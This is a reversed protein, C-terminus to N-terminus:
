CIILLDEWNFCKEKMYSLTALGLGGLGAIGLDKRNYAAATSFLDITRNFHYDRLLRIDETAHRNYLINLTSLFRVDVVYPDNDISKRRKDERWQRILGLSSDMDRGILEADIGPYALISTFFTLVARFMPELDDTKEAFEFLHRLFTPTNAAVGIVHERVQNCFEPYKEGCGKLMVAVMGCIHYLYCIHERDKKPVRKERVADSLQKLLIHTSELFTIIKDKVVLYDLEDERSPNPIKRFENWSNFFLATGCSEVDPERFIGGPLKIISKELNGWLSDGEIFDNEVLNRFGQAIGFVGSSFPRMSYQKLDKTINLVLSNAFDFYIDTQKYWKDYNYLFIAAGMKGYYLGSDKQFGANILMSKAIKELIPGPDRKKLANKM